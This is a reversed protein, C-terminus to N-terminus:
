ITKFHIFFINFNFNKNQGRDKNKLIKLYQMGHENGMAMIGYTILPDELGFGQDRDWM